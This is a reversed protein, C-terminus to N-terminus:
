CPLTLAVYLWSGNRRRISGDTDRMVHDALDGVFVGTLVNDIRLVQAEICEGQVKTFVDVEEIELM